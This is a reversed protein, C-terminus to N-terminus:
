GTRGTASFSSGIMRGAMLQGLRTEWDALYVVGQGLPKGTNDVIAYGIKATGPDVALICGSEM